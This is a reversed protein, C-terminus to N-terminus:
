GDAVSFVTGDHVDAAGVTGLKIVKQPTQHEEVEVEVVAKLVWDDDDVVVEILVVEVDPRVAGGRVSACTMRLVERESIENMRIDREVGRLHLGGRGGGDRALQRLLADV